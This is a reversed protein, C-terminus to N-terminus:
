ILDFYFINDVKLYRNIAHKTIGVFVGKVIKVVM